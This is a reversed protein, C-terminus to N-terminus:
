FTLNIGFMYKRTSPYVSPGTSGIVSGGSAPIEPDVGSYGTVCFLNEGTFFIRMNQIYYKPLKLNYGITLSRLKLYDGDELYRTSAKNSNSSNNYSAVPHTAIDGPKEWRTWGDMLKMQNRDTYAGDSDYEQRSYNYIKGGISYGFVATLDINKWALTTNFGGFLKPTSADCIVQDAEAYNETIERGTINGNEDKTHKYWQPAGTEPNVGAWEVMYFSDSDYDKKLIKDAEGAIGIGGSRIIETNNGYLEKIRNRNHGLNMEVSWNWDRTRIIDGGVTLEIGQNEMEGVNKWRSTVGTLGSVPVAFLINSTYKYYYDFSFRFREHFMSADLGVGTTYTKEWTLEKNGIQSILAASTGNYKASISYLDYQPYLSSPRNGVTGYSARLKLNNVWDAKFWKERNINWGASVSFFNGYKNEDGFNSAGDRRFSVEGLYRNDYSYIAKFLYSQMAWESLSGGVDEPIATVDLVEFGPVFGTGTASIAKGQYDNFEYALLANLSHKDWMKNFRLIQNTYRRVTNSQYEELRGNVGSAGECRPDSYSNYYYGTWRFNNVSNFTLWDTIRIDFDFNGSFEYTKYDTHNGYSLDNLYNTSQSNVWGSYRDPVLNGNEDYPSDWPFMSYMATVSYQADHTNRMAGAVSPKITLWSFPKYNTRYRFNYRQLDYGKVTGEEDYYGMSFYSNIKEGGGSLSVNYEQTVGSQTALDWWDFNANRLDENWRPFNIQDANSFSKYYDYLEAGDMMELNGNNLRSVGAKASVNITMKGSKGSKTTVLIVGNAGQSGYIATSAADKLITMTEIDAPNLQGAGDGVIVGDIVWLPSSSGNISAKGRVMVAGSSGPQGSGPAVFVGSVKGNLMNEVNATTVDKLKNEKVTQLSGTLSERRQTGYGVVVVEDLTETDEKLNVKMNPEAKVEITKYGVFSIQLVAGAPANLEYVGDLDTIVGNTTGKVIVNAGIVPEGTSADLVLGKVKMTQQTIENPSAAEVSTPLAAMPLSTCCFAGTLIALRGRYNVNRLGNASNFYRMNLEALPSKM